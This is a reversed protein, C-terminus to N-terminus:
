DSKITITKPKVQESKPLILKLVGNEIEAEAAEDEVATPLVLSRRFAGYRCERRVYNEDSIEEESRIEGRITLTDGVISIDIDEPDVGPVAAKVIVDDDTTYVDVALGEEGVPLLSGESPKLFSEELLRDMAERLSLTNRWPDWRTLNSM